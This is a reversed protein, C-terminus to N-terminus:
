RAELGDRLIAQIETMLGQLEGCDDLYRSVAPFATLRAMEATRATEAAEAERRNGEARARTETRQLRLLNQFAEAYEPSGELVKKLERMEAVLDSDRLLSVLKTENAM